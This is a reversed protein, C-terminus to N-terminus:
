RDHVALVAAGELRGARLDALAKNAQALPYRTVQMKIGARPAIGFVRARGQAHSQRRFRAPAGGVSASVSFESYRVHPHRACVVRGGKRVAALAAPVLAGVPAFIIAADLAEPPREDSGGAWVAGLARAFDQAANDGPPHLCLGRRGQWTAVQAIIHAAAGFGYLGSHAGEGAM